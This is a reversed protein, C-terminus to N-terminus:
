KTVWYKAATQKSTHSNLQSVLTPFLTMIFKKDSKIVLRWQLQRRPATKDLASPTAKFLTQSIRLRRVQMNVHWKSVHLVNM